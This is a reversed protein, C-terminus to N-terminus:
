TFFFVDYVDRVEDLINKQHSCTTHIPVIINQLLQKKPNGIKSVGLKTSQKPAWSKVLCPSIMDAMISSAITFTALQHITPLDYTQHTKTSPHHKEFSTTQFVKNFLTLMDLDHIKLVSPLTIAPHTLFTLTTCDWWLIILYPYV